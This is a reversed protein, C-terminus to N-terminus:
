SLNIIWLVIIKKFKVPPHPPIKVIGFSAKGFWMFAEKLGIVNENNIEIRKWNDDKLCQGPRKKLWMLSDSSPRPPGLEFPRGKCRTFTDSDPDNPKSSFYKSIWSSYKSKWSLYKFEEIKLHLRCIGIWLQPFTSLYYILKFIRGFKINQYFVLVM